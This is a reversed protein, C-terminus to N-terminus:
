MELRKSFKREPRSKQTSQNRENRRIDLERKFVEAVRELLRQEKAKARDTHSKEQAVLVPMTTSLPSQM